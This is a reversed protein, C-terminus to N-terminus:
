SIKRDLYGSVVQQEVDLKLNENRVFLPVNPKIVEFNIVPASDNM